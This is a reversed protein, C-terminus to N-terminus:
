AMVFYHPFPCAIRCSLAKALFDGKKEGPITKTCIVFQQNLSMKQAIHGKTVEIKFQKGMYVITVKEEM